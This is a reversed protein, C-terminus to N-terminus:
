ESKLLSQLTKVGQLDYESGTLESLLQALEAGDAKIDQEIAPLSKAYKQVLQRMAQEFESLRQEMLALIHQELPAIWKAHLLDDAEADTLHEIRDITKKELEARLEKIESDLAAKREITQIALNVAHEWSGEQQSQEQAIAELRSMIEKKTYTGNKSAQMAKWNVELHLLRFQKKAATGTLELYEHLSQAEPTELDDLITQWAAKLEKKQFKTHDESVADSELQEASLSSLIDSLTEACAASAAEQARLAALDDPLLWEQVLAFPLIRGEWGDQQETEHGDSDKKIVLHPQVTRVADAEDTQIMELDAAITRWADDLEQYADYADLLPVGACRRFVDGAIHEEESALAVTQRGAVLRAHLDTAFGAFHDRLQQTLAVASPHTAITTAIDDTRVTYYADNLSAFLDDRLGPLATWEAAYRDLEAAPIGGQMLAYLDWPEEAAAADVYRPINLNYDNQRIEAKSVLRSFQACDRKERYTDVIRRIDKARLANKKGVKAYGQAANIILVDSADRKQRLVMILTPISTGFFINEPLGIIAEIQNREILERRIDYEEGGRFLVGHPLVICMIGDPKLHYLDHLLFAYDAKSKPALGYSAYRPDSEKNKPDWHQSYPPNSVVADVRLAEYTTERNEETDFYPWDAELTDGRRATINQASIGRMVLNMRTLNYTNEKLEQAYYEIQDARGTERAVSRGINLLLSGSGSTPDYIKIQQRDRLHYAVIDSMLLSVEHPTYFEGAKKGANAAFNSILYEYIFGIVDYDQKRDMPIEDILALLGRIAKTQAGTSDGLKSLGTSLSDLIGEFVRRKKKDEQSPHHPDVPVLLRNFASLAERVDAVSFAGKKERWTSFLNDYGIFYGLARQAWLLDDADLNKETMDALEDEAVGQERWFAVQRESLFKYFMFGLIYDKYENAEIRSRMKNASQFIKNALQQKNM